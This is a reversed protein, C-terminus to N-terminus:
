RQLRRELWELRRNVWKEASKVALIESETIRSENEILYLM